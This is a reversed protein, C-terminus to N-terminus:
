LYPYPLEGSSAGSSGLICLCMGAAKIQTSHSALARGVAPFM